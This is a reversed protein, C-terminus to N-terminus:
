QGFQGINDLIWNILDCYQSYYLIRVRNDHGSDSECEGM